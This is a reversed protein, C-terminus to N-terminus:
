SYEGSQLARNKRIVGALAMSWVFGGAVKALLQGAIIDPMLIGFALTPFILSDVMASLLNSGNVKILWIRDRLLHYSLADVLGAAAFAIFSALAIAGADRNLLYSILSGSFILLTMKVLLNEKRWAEHLADRSTLDLGILLFATLLTARPGWETIVLNAIVVSALYAIVLVLKKWSITMNKIWIQYLASVLTGNNIIPMFEKQWNM